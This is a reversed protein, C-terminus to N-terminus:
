LGEGGVAARLAKEAMARRAVINPAYGFRGSSLELMGQRWTEFYPAMAELMREAAGDPVRVLWTPSPDFPDGWADCDDHLLHSLPASGDSEDHKPCRTWLEPEM